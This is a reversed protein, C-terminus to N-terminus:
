IIISVGKHANKEKYIIFGTIFKQGIWEHLLADVHRRIKLAKDSFAKESLNGMELETYIGEYSIRNNRAFSKSKMGWIQRLLYGRIVIVEDTSRVAEKTQLLAIPVNIIQGSVQAYEYLIPKSLLKYAEQIKGGASVTVKNCALLYGEYTAKCDKGYSQAEQSFDIKVTISRSKELSRTVAGIAQPSIKETELMGNMARYVMVPTIINNGAEFLTVVGDHVERDYPTFSSRGSLSVNETVYSLMVRTTIEKKAGPKSVVLSFEGFNVLDRTIENALKNYPKISRQPLISKLSEVILVPLRFSGKIINEKSALETLLEKWAVATYEDIDESYNKLTWEIIDSLTITREESKVVQYSFQMSDNSNEQSVLEPMYIQLKDDLAYYNKPPLHIGKFEISVSLHLAAFPMDLTGSLDHEGLKFYANMTPLLEILREWVEDSATQTNEPRTM